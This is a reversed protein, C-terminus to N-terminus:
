SNPRGALIARLRCRRRRSEGAGEVRLRHPTEFDIFLLGVKGTESMNGASLFMSNGNYLPFAISEPSRM